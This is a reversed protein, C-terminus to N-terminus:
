GRLEALNRIHERQTRTYTCPYTFILTCQLHHLRLGGRLEAPYPARCHSYKRAHPHPVRTPVCVRVRVCVCVCVVCVITPACLCRSHQADFRLFENTTKIDRACVCECAGMYRRQKHVCTRAFSFVTVTQPPPTRMGVPLPQSKGGKEKDRPCGM